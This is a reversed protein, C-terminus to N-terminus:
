SALVHYHRANVYAFGTQINRNSLTRDVPEVVGHLSDGLQEFMESLLTGSHRHALGGSTVFPQHHVAQAFGTYM